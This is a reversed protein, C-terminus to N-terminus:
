QKAAAVELSIKGTPGHANIVDGTGIAVFVGGAAFTQHGPGADVAGQLDKETTLIILYRAPDEPALKTSLEYHGREVWGAAVFHADPIGLRRIEKFDNDLFLFNPVFVHSAFYSKITIAVDHSLAPLKFALFFSKGTQFDYAQKTQDIHTVISAKDGLTEYKFEAMGQCCSKAAAYAEEAKARVGHVHAGAPLTSIEQAEVLSAFALLGIAMKIRRLYRVMM